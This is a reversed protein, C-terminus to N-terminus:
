YRYRVGLRIEYPVGNVEGQPRKLWRREIRAIDRLQISTGNQMKAVPMKGFFDMDTSSAGTGLNEIITAEL